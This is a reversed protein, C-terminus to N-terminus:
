MRLDHQVALGSPLLWWYTLLAAFSPAEFSLLIGFAVILGLWRRTKFLYVPLVFPWFFFVLADYEYATGVARGRRDANVGSAIALSFAANYLWGASASREGGYYTLMVMSVSEFALIIGVALSPALMRRQEM